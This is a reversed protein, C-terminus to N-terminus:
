KAGFPYILQRVESPVTTSFLGCNQLMPRVSLYPTYEPWLPRVLYAEVGALCPVVTTMSNRAEVTRNM